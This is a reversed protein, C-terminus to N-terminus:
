AIWTRVNRSDFWYFNSGLISEGNNASGPRAASETM